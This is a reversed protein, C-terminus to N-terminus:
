AIGFRKKLDLSVLADTGDLPLARVPSDLFQSVHRLKLNGAEPFNAAFNDNTLASFRLNQGFHV